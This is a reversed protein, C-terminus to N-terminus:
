RLWGMLGMVAANIMTGNTNWVLIERVKVRHRRCVEMLMERLAGPAIPQVDLALPAMRPAMVFVGMAVAVTGGSYIGGTLSRNALLSTASQITERSALIAMLPLLSLLVNLRIQLIVYQVRSLTPYVPRGDDLRRVLMAEQMRRDIPYYAWWLGILG